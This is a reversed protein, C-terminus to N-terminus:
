SKTLKSLLKLGLIAEMIITNILSIKELIFFLIMLIFFIHAIPRRAASAEVAEIEAFESGEGVDFECGVEEKGGM